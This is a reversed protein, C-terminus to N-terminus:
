AMIAAQYIIFVLYQHAVDGPLGCICKQLGTWAKQEVVDLIVHPILLASYIM